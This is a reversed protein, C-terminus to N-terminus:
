FGYKELVQKMETNEDNELLGIPYVQSTAPLDAVSFRSIEAPIGFRSSDTYQKSATQWYSYISNQSINEFPRFLPNASLFISIEVLFFKSVEEFDEQAPIMKSICNRIFDKRNGIPVDRKADPSPERYIPTILGVVWSCFQNKKDVRQHSVRMSMNFNDFIVMYGQHIKSICFEEASRPVLESLDKVYRHSQKYGQCIGQKNLLDLVSRKAGKSLLCLSTVKQLLSARQSHVKALM